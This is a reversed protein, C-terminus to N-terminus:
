LNAANAASNQEKQWLQAAALVFLLIGFQTGSDGIRYHVMEFFVETGEVSQMGPCFAWRYLEAIQISEVENPGPLYGCEILFDKE